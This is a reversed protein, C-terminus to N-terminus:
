INEEYFGNNYILVNIISKSNKKEKKKKTKKKKKRNGPTLLIAFSTTPNNFLKYSTTYETELHKDIDIYDDIKDLFM